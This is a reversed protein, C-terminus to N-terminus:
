AIPFADIDPAFELSVAPFTDEFKKEKEFWICEIVAGDKLINTVTMRPGSSRLQVVDGKKFEPM